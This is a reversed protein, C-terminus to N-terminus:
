GEGLRTLAERLARRAEDWATMNDTQLHKHKTAENFLDLLAYYEVETPPRTTGRIVETADDLKKVVEALEAERKQLVLRHEVLDEPDCYEEGRRMAEQHGGIGVKHAVERLEKLADQRQSERELAAFVEESWADWEERQRAGEDGLPWYRKFQSHSIVDQVLQLYEVSRAEIAEEMRVRIRANFTQMVQAMHAEDMAVHKSHALELGRAFDGLPKKEDIHCHHHFEGHLHKHVAQRAQEREPHPLEERKLADHVEQLRRILPTEAVELGQMARKLQTSAENMNRAQIEAESPGRKKPLKRPLRSKETPPALSVAV